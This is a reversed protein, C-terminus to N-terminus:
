ICEALARDFVPSPFKAARIYTKKAVTERAGSLKIPQQLASLDYRCVACTQASCRM